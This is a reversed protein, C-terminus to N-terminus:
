KGRGRKITKIKGFRTFLVGKYCLGVVGSKNVKTTILTSSNKFLTGMAKDM